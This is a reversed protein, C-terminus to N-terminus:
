GVDENITVKGFAVISDASSSTETVQLEFYYEGELDATDSGALTVTVTSGSPTGTKTIEAADTPKPGSAITFTFTGTISVAAGARDRMTFTLTRDDGSFLAIYQPRVRGGWWADLPIDPAAM